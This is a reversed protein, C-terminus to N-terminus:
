LSAKCTGHLCVKPLDVYKIIDKKIKKEKQRLLQYWLKLLQYWLWITGSHMTTWITATSILILSSSFTLSLWSPSWGTHHSSYNREIALLPSLHTWGVPTSRYKKIYPSALWWPPSPNSAARSVPPSCLRSTSSPHHSSRHSSRSKESLSISSARPSTCPM